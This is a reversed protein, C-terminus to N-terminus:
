SLAFDTWVTNRYWISLDRPLNSTTPMAELPQYLLSGLSFEPLGGAWRSESLPRALTRERVLRLPGM